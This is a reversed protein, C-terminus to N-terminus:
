KSTIWSGKEYTVLNRGVRCKNTEQFLKNVKEEIWRLSYVEKIAMNIKSNPDVDCKKVGYQSKIYPAHYMVAGDHFIGRFKATTFAVACASACMQAGTVIAAVSWRQPNEETSGNRGAFLRALRVGAYADGGPSNLYVKIAYSHAESMYEGADRLYREIQDVLGPTIRSNVEIHYTNDSMDQVLRLEHSGHVVKYDCSSWGYTTGAINHRCDAQANTAIMVALAALIYKIM